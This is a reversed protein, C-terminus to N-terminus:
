IKRWIILNDRLWPFGLIVQHNQLMASKIKYSMEWDPEFLGVEKFVSEWYSLPQCNIHGTGKQGIQAASFWIWESASNCISNVFKGSDKEALHEAVEISVAMDYINIGINALLVDNICIDDKLSAPIFELVEKSGEIGYLDQVGNVKLKELIFGCGCGWDILSSPKFHASIIDALFHYAPRYKQLSRFFESGYMTNDIPDAKIHSELAQIIDENM